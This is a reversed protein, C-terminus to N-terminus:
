SVLNQQRAAKVEQSKPCYTYQLWDTNVYIRFNVFAKKGIRKEVYGCLWSLFTFIELAFLAKALKLYFDNRM